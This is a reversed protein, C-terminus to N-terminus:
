AHDDGKLMEAVMLAADAAEEDDLIARLQAELRGPDGDILDRYIAQREDHRGEAVLYPRAAKLVTLTTADVGAAKVAKRVAALLETDPDAARGEAEPAEWEWSHRGKHDRARDCAILRGDEPQIWCLADHRGEARGREYAMRLFDLGGDGPETNQAMAAAVLHPAAAALVAQAAETLWDPDGVFLVLADRAATTATDPDAM